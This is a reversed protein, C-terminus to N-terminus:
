YTSYIILILKINKLKKFTTVLFNSAVLKAHKMCRRARWMTEPPNVGQHGCHYSAHHGVKQQQKSVLGHRVRELGMSHLGGLEGRDVNNGLCCHQLLNGNGEGPSRGAGPILGMDGAQAPPNKAGLDSSFGFVSKVVEKGEWKGAERSLKRPNGGWNASSDQHPLRNRSVGLWSLCQWFCSLSVKRITGHSLSQAGRAPAQTHDRTLSSYGM